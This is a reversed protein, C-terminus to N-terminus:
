PATTTTAAPVSTTSVASELEARLPEVLQTIIPPPNLADLKQLEALASDQRGLQNFAIALFAHADPYEPHETAVDLLDDIRSLDSQVIRVGAAYTKAELNAPDRRAVDDYCSLAGSVNGQGQTADALCQALQERSTQNIDGTLTGGATRRGAFSAVGFGCLVAFLLVGAVILRTRRRDSPPVAARLEAKGEEVAKTVGGLRAEYDHRLTEYDVEDLDGADHERELDELSRKLFARQEELVALADPDLRITRTRAEPSESM